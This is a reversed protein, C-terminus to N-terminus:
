SYLKKVETVLFKKVTGFPVDAGNKFIIKESVVDDFYTLCKLVLNQDQDPMKKALFALVERLPYQQFIFYLDVYDKLVSRGTIASLKMCAIDRISAIDVHADHILPDIVPYPYRLFSVKLEENIIVSLTDKEEQVKEVKRGACAERVREHLKGTDFHGTAFFDFDVSDRHGIQLALGTGGALYFEGKFKALTPLFGM